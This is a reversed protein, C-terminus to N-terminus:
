IKMKEAFEKKEKLVKIQEARKKDAERKKKAIKSLHHNFFIKFLPIKILMSYLAKMYMNTEYDRFDTLVLHRDMVQKFNNYDKIFEFFTGDRM